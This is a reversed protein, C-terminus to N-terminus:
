LSLRSRPVRIDFAITLREGSDFPLTCHWLTSPFLVLKGVEPAIQRYPELGLKLEPPGEGFSIWGAPPVGIDPPKPVDVYLASSIWGKPHTHTSHHGGGRLRVSWSGEFQVTGDRPLGLLPHDNQVEGLSAIYAKVSTVIKARIHQIPALPRFFLQGSTQTGGRVSQELFPAQSIHLSQLCGALARQEETTLSLDYIGIPAPDGDLWNAREDGLLRWALSLYPWFLTASSGSVQGMGIAVALVPDGIRLAQRVKCLDLGVDSVQKVADFLNPDEGTRDGSESVIHVRTLELATQPGFDQLAQRLVARAGEWDRATSLLHIWALRLSLSQPCSQSAAKFSEDFVERRGAAVRLAALTKHGDLWQPERDLVERLLAEAQDQQGEASLAAASNRIITPNNPSLARAADFAERAPRATEFLVQALAFAATTNSADLARARTLAALAEEMAQEERYALGLAQWVGSHHCNPQALPELLAIALQSQGQGIAAGAFAGAADLDPKQSASLARYAEILKRDQESM